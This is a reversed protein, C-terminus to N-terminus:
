KGATAGGGSAGGGSSSSKGSTYSRYLAQSRDATQPTAAAPAVLDTPDAVMNALNRQSACGWNAYVGQEARRTIDESWDDCALPAVSGIKTYAILAGSKGDARAGYRVREPAVGNENLISAVFSRTKDSGRSSVRVDLVGRGDRLYQRVFKTVAFYNDSQAAASGGVPPIDIAERRVEAGIPHLQNADTTRTGATEWEHKEACGGLVIMAFAAIVVPRARRVVTGRINSM